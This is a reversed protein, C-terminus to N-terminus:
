NSIDLANSVLNNDRSNNLVNIPRSLDLGLHRISYQLEIPRSKMRCNDPKLRLVKIQNDLQNDAVVRFSNVGTCGSTLVRITMFGKLLEYSVLQALQANKLKNADDMKSANVCTVSAFGILISLVWSKMKM